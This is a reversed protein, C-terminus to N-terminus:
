NPMSSPPLFKSFGSGFTQNEAAITKFKAYHYVDIQLLRCFPVESSMVNIVKQNM